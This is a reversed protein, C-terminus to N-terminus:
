RARIRPRELNRIEVALANRVRDGQICAGKNSQGWACHQVSKLYRLVHESNDALLGAVTANRPVALLATTLLSQFQSHVNHNEAVSQERWTYSANTSCTDLIWYLFVRPWKVSGLRHVTIVTRLQNAQDVGKAHHNYADIAVPISLIATPDGHFAPWAVSASTSTKGPRRRRREVRDEPAHLSYATTLGLVANNDQWLFALCRGVPMTVAGNYVVVNRQNKLKILETPM